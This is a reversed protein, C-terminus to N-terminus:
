DTSRRTSLYYGAGALALVVIVGVIILPAASSDDDEDADVEDADFDIPATSSTTADDTPLSTISADESTSPTTPDTTPTADDGATDDAPNDVDVIAALQDRGPADPAVDDISAAPEADAPLVLLRPAPYESAPDGDIWALEEGNECVQISPFVLLEGVSDPATFTIPFAGEQDAPLTGGTWEAVTNGEGDDTTSATWGEVEGAVAGTLPARIAVEVTPSGDCGHTPKLNLTAETGAPVAVLDADTHAGAPTPAALVLGLLLALLLAPTAANPSRRKTM